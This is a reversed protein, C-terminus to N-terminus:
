AVALVLAAPQPSVPDCAFIPSEQAFMFCCAYPKRRLVCQLCAIKFPWQCNQPRYMELPSALGPIHVHGWAHVCSSFRGLLGDIPHNDSLADAALKLSAEVGTYTSALSSRGAM